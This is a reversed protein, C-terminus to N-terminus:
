YDRARIIFYIVMGLPPVLMFAIGYGLLTRLEGIESQTVSDAKPIGSIVMSVVGLGILFSLLGSILLLRKVKM